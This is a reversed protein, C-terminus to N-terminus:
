PRRLLEVLSPSSQGVLGSVDEGVELFLGRARESDRGGLSAAVARVAAGPRIDDVLPLHQPVLQHGLGEGVEGVPLGPWHCGKLVDCIVLTGPPPQQGNWAGVERKGRRDELLSQGRVKQQGRRRDSLSSPVSPFHGTATTLGDVEKAVGDHGAVVDRPVGPSFPMVCYLLM